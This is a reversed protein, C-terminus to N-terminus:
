IFTVYLTFNDRNKIFLASYQSSMCLMPSLAGGNKVQASSSPPQDTEYWPGKGRPIDGKTDM